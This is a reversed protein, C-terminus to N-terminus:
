GRRNMSGIFWEVGAPVTVTIRNNGPMIQGAWAGGDRSVADAIQTLNTNDRLVFGPMWITDGVILKDTSLTTYGADSVATDVTALDITTTITETQWLATEREVAISITGSAPLNKFCYVTQPPISWSDRNVFITVLQPSNTSWDTYNGLTPLTPQRKTITEYWTPDFQDGFNTMNTRHFMKPRKKLIRTLAQAMPFQNPTYPASLTQENLYHNHGGASEIVTWLINDLPMWYPDTEIKLDFEYIMGKQSSQISRIQGRTHLWLLEGANYQLQSLPDRSFDVHASLDDYAIIDTDQGAINILQQYLMDKTRFEDNYIITSLKFDRPKTLFRSAPRIVHASDITTQTKGIAEWELKLEPELHGFININGIQYISIM